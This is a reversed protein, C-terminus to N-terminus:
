VELTGEGEVGFVECAAAGVWAHSWFCNIELVNRLELCMNVVRAVCLMYNKM